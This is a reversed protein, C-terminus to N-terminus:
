DKLNLWILNRGKQLNLGEVALDIDSKEHFIKEDLTSGFLYVKKAKFDKILINAADSALQKFLKIKKKKAKEDEKFKRSWFKKYDALTSM